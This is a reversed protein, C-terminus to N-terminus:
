NRQFGLLIPDDGLSPSVLFILSNIMQVMKNPGALIFVNYCSTIISLHLLHRNNLHQRATANFPDFSGETLTKYQGDEQAKSRFFENCTKFLLSM